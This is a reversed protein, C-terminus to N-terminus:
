TLATEESMLLGDKAWYSVLTPFCAVPVWPRVSHHQQLAPLASPHGLFKLFSPPLKGPLSSPVSASAFRMEGERKGAGRSEPCQQPFEPLDHSASQWPHMATTTDSSSLLTHGPFWNVVGNGRGEQKGWTSGYGLFM